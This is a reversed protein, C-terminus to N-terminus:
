IQLSEAVAKYTGKWGRLSLAMAAKPSRPMRHSQGRVELTEATSVQMQAARVCAVNREARGECASSSSCVASGGGPEPSAGGM